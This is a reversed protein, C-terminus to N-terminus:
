LTNINEESNEKTSTSEKYNFKNEIELKEEEAKEFNINNTLNQKKFENIILLIKESDEDVPIENLNFNVIEKDM